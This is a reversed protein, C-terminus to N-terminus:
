CVRLVGMPPSTGHWALRDGHSDIVVFIGVTRYALSRDTQRCPNTRVSANPFGLCGHSTKGEGDNDWDGNYPNRIQLDATQACSVDPYPACGDVWARGVIYGPYKKSKGIETTGVCTETVPAAPSGVTFTQTFRNMAVANDSQDAGPVPPAASAATAGYMSLAIVLLVMAAAVRFRKM